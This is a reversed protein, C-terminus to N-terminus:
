AVLEAPEGVLESREDVLDLLPVCPPAVEEFLYYHGLPM